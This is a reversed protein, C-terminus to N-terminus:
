SHTSQFTSSDYNQLLTDLTLHLPEHFAPYAALCLDCSSQTARVRCTNNDNNPRETMSTGGRRVPAWWAGREM